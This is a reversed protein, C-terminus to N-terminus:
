RYTKVMESLKEQRQERTLALATEWMTKYDNKPNSRKNEEAVLRDAFAKGYLDTYADYLYLFLLEHDNINKPYHKLSAHLRHALEHVLTGKKVEHTYSARLIMPNQGWGSYSPEEKVRALILSDSFSMDSLEKLRAVIRDGERSWIERYEMAAKEFATDSATFTIIIRSQAFVNLSLFCSMLLLLRMTHLYYFAYRSYVTKLYFWRTKDKFSM